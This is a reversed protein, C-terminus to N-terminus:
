RKLVAGLATPLDPHSHEFGAATLADPMVRQSVFLLEYALQSGLLIKPGFKPVPVVTPRGLAKGLARTFDANTVPEPATLNVPGEVDSELLFGIARVEDALSIWSWWQKGNGLRGGLFFRFLPVMRGLAGEHPDLVIGSRITVVRTGVDRARVAAGEWADCVQSLFIDGPGSSETLVEDGRDGYFGIASASVLVKPPDDCRAIAGSITGTGHERSTLIRQKQKASWRKAGINEGALHVVADLGELAGPDLVQNDPDWFIAEEGPSLARRVLPIVDHGDSRLAESLASGILGSSGSMAVQM